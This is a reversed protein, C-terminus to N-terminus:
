YQYLHKTIITFSWDIGNLNLINGKDDYLTVRLREIDVPGFYERKNRLIGNSFETLITKFPRPRNPIIAFVNSVTPSELKLNPSNKRNKIIENISYAQAQTITKPLNQTYFPVPVPNTVTSPTCEPKEVTFEESTNSVVIGPTYYDPLSLKTETNQISVLTKNVRNSNYDDIALIFYRPGLLDVLAEATLNFFGATIVTLTYAPDRFGMTWGLSNNIKAQGLCSNCSSNSVLSNDYFTITYELIQKADVIDPLSFQYKGTISNYDIYTGAVGLFVESTLKDNIAEKLTDESYNGSEIIIDFPGLVTGIGDDLTYEISFCNTGYFKDINYWMVPLEISYMELAIVDTLQQTLDLTFDTNSWQSEQIGSISNYKFSSDKASPVNNQRYRSDVTLTREIVNKLNPNLQGQVVPLSFGNGVGLAERKMPVRENNFVKIKNKRDTRKNNQTQNKQILNQDDWWDDTQKNNFFNILIEQVSEFFSQMKENGESKFKNIYVDSKEIINDRTLDEINLLEKLDEISYDDINLNESEM